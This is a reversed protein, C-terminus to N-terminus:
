HCPATGADSVESDVMRYEWGYGGDRLTLILVGHDIAIRLESNPQIEGIGRVEAGGTGVIFQRIGRERDERADPDQPAFREYHHDHGNVIVDAGADYLARWIPDVNPDNGHEDGSSFRPHHFIALTCTAADPRALEGALWRGQPSDADCGGVEGCDSDLVIVRWTGLDRAYWPDGDPGVAAAGFYELYGALDETRWDHNGPAPWTRDRHRGWSPAYCDRFNAASGDEYANDGATFVTGEIDDLLDATAEDGPSACDGIDGAGVLVPDEVSGSPSAGPSPSGVAPSGSAVGSATASPTLTPAISVSASAPVAAVSASSDAGPGGGGVIGALGIIVLLVAVVVVSGLALQRLLEDGRNPARSPSPPETPPTSPPTTADSM